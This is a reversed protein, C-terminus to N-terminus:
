TLDRSRRRRPEGAGRIRGSRLGALTAQSLTVGPWAVGRSLGREGGGGWGGVGM